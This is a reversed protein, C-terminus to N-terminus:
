RKMYAEDFNMITSAVVARAALEEPAVGTAHPYEGVTLLARAEAPNAAFGAHEEEFLRVLLTQEKETPYRSTLLRFAYVVQQDITDGGQAMMREGLVRAAEVYQPDNLLVLAQLPSNTKQREVICFNRESADFSIMSPPPTSRKWITYMSRRYLKDGEDQRYETANRTAMEKWLGAPQYPHVSPGGITPVLLGSVALANDRIMEATMRYSPGRALWDNGPDAELLEPSGVSSQRYTASMVIQKLMGKVDWGSAVFEAALWDLLEPHTPLSGQSGFDDPTAVIGKGFLMQWYRNVTVRATLPHAPDTLWQALGLRNQELNEQFAPLVAPTGPAVEDLRADYAGRDLVFTSRPKERERMVMVEQQPTIIENYRGRLEEVEAAIRRYNPSVRHVYHYRLAEKQAETWRDASQEAIAGLPNVQGALKQVELATLRTEFVKVEDVWVDQLRTQNHDIRGLQLTQDGGWNTIEENYFNYTHLISKQLNDVVIESDNEKGDIYLKIGSARSSGDYTLVLHHWASRELATTTRIEISNDPAVHNLSASLTGDENLVVLYGRNGNFVGYSRGILPGALSDKQLNVWLSLSFMQNREFAHSGWESAFWSEGNLEIANGSMGAVVAMPLELDGQLRAPKGSRVNNAFTDDEIGDLPYDGVLGPVSLPSSGRLGAVWREYGKDYNPHDVALQAVRPVLAAEIADLDEEAEESPLIVTPSAEGAYPIIGMENVSNFYGFMQYYEKQSIPDYKHDHCRACELSLGMFAKGLTHTRDAVYEVRYEEDVVGGEQSQMHNRNFGTALIQNRTANPLMDGALQWTLFEDFPQNENFANIVWDRWPWMNRMGDDQYGHSDAYRSIDMWEAALREGYAEQALLADVVKEYADPAEDAIFADIQELTPPLGTLDLSLRRILTEKSAEPSPTLGQQELKELVFADIAHTGWDTVVSPPDPRVPPIFSWHQKYAAGQEIWKFIIAKEEPTLYLNSEPPPMLEEPDDTVLRHFVASKRLSGPVIARNGTEALAESAYVEDDLRLGAQRANDDPGHCAFCRDSLIPKVHYNYDVTEPLNKEAEVIAAPKDPTCHLGFPLLAFAIVWRKM